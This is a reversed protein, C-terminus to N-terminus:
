QAWPPNVTNTTGEITFTMGLPTVIWATAPEETENSVRFRSGAPITVADGPLLEAREDGIEAQVRGSLVRFVEEVSMHHPVGPTNPPFAAQWAGLTGAGTASRSYSRFLVGHVTFEEADEPKTLLM